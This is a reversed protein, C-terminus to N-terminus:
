GMEMELLALTVGPTRPILSGLQWATNVTRFTYHMRYSPFFDSQIEKELLEPQKLKHFNGTINLLKTYINIIKFIKLYLLLTHYCEIIKLPEILM